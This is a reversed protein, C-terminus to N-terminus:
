SCSSTYDTYKSALESCFIGGFADIAELHTLKDINVYHNWFQELMNELFKM